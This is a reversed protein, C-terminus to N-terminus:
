AVQQWEKAPEQDLCERIDKDHQLNELEKKWGERLSVKTEWELCLHSKMNGHSVASASRQKLDPQDRGTQRMLSLLRKMGNQRADTGGGNAKEWIYMECECSASRCPMPSLLSNPINSILDNLRCLPPFFAWSFSRAAFTTWIIYVCLSISASISDLKTTPICVSVRRYFLVCLTLWSVWRCCARCVATLFQCGSCRKMSLLTCISSKTRKEDPRVFPFHHFVCCHCNWQDILSFCQSWRQCRLQVLLEGMSQNIISEKLYLSEFANESTWETSFRNQDDCRTSQWLYFGTMGQIWISAPSASHSCWEKNLSVNWVKILLEWSRSDRKYLKECWVPWLHVREWGWASM